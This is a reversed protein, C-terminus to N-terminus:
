SFRVELLSFDDALHDGGHTLVRGVIADLRDATRSIPTMLPDRAAAAVLDVFADYGLIAGERDTVEFAGDSFLYLMSGPMVSIHDEPYDPESFFGVLPGPEGLQRSEGTPPLLLAPHHGAAAFSLSGTVADYVGYWATLFKGDTRELPFAANLGALVEAPRTFDVGPLSRGRLVNGVTVALLSAGVGHGSV